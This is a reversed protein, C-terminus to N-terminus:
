RRELLMKGVCDLEYALCEHETLKRDYILLDFYKGSPDDQRTLLGDMPQCGLSFGRNRMGYVYDFGNNM